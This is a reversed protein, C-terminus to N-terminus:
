LQIPNDVDAIIWGPRNNNGEGNGDTIDDEETVSKIELDELIGSIEYKPMNHAEMCEELQDMIAIDNAIHRVLIEKLKFPNRFAFLANIFYSATNLDKARLFSKFCNHQEPTWSKFIGEDLPKVYERDEYKTSLYKKYNDDEINFLSFAAEFAKSREQLTARTAENILSDIYQNLKTEDNIISYLENRKEMTLSNLHYFIDAGISEIIESSENFEKTTIFEQLVADNTVPQPNTENVQQPNSM